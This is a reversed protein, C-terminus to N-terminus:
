EYKAALTEIDKIGLVGKIEENQVAYIAAKAITSVDLPKDTM